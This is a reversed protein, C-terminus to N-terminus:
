TRMNQANAAVKAQNELVHINWADLKAQQEVRDEVAKKNEQARIMQRLFDPM